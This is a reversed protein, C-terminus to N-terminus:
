SANEESGPTRGSLRRGAFFEKLMRSSDEQLLGFEVIPRHNLRAHPIVTLVSGAAGAKPDKAAIVVRAIRAHVIAGACMACPELTTYLVAETLRYNREAECAARIANLEAHATPDFAGISRNRGEGAIRGNVVVVAGVPVEDALASARALELARRM